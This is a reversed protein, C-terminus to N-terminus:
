NGYPGPLNHFPSVLPCWYVLFMCPSRSLMCCVRVNFDCGLFPHVPTGCATLVERATSLWVYVNPFPNSYNLPCKSGRERDRKQPFPHPPRGRPGRDAAAALRPAATTPPSGPPPKSGPREAARTHILIHAPLGARKIGAAARRAYSFTHGSAARKM